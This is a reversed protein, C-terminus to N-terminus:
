LLGFILGGEPGQFINGADKGATQLYVENLRPGGPGGATKYFIAISTSTFSSCVATQATM